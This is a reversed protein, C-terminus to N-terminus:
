VTKQLIPLIVFIFVLVVAVLIVVILIACIWKGTQKQVVQAEVIEENAKMTNQLAAEVALDAKIM